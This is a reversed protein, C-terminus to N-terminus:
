AQRLTAKGDIPFARTEAAPATAPLGAAKTGRLASKRSARHPADTRSEPEGGGAGRQGRGGREGEKEPGEPGSLPAGTPGAHTPRPQRHVVRRRASRTVRAHTGALTQELPPRLPQGRTPKPRLADTRREGRRRAPAGPKRGSDRSGGGRPLWSRGLPRSM